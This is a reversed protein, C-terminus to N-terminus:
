KVRRLMFEEANAQGKVTGAIRAVLATDGMRKYTIAQPFDHTPNEFVFSDGSATTLTFTVPQDNNQGKVTPIYLLDTGRSELSITESIMTDKGKVFGGVGALSEGAALNWQEFVTGEPTTMEWRGALWSVDSLTALAKPTAPATTTDTTTATQEGTGNCSSLALAAIIAASYLTNMFLIQEPAFTLRTARRANYFVSM